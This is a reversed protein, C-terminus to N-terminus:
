HVIVVIKTGPAVIGSVQAFTLYPYKKRPMVFKRRKFRPRIVPPRYPIVLPPKFAVPIYRKSRFFRPKRRRWIVPPKKKLPSKFVGVIPYLRRRAVRLKRPKFWKKRKFVTGRALAM